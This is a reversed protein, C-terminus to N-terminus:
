FLRVNKGDPKLKLQFADKRLESYIRLADSYDNYSLWWAGIYDIVQEKAEASNDYIGPVRGKLVLYYKQKKSKM